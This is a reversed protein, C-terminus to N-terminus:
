PTYPRHNVFPTFPLYSDALTLIHIAIKDGRMYIIGQGHINGGWSWRFTISKGSVQWDKIKLDGGARGHFVALRYFEGEDVRSNLLATSDTAVANHVEGVGLLVGDETFLDRVQEYDGSEFAAEYAVLIEPMEPNLMANAVALDALADDKEENCGEVAALAVAVESQADELDTLAEGLEAALKDARQQLNISWVAGGILALLLIIIVILQWRTGKTEM